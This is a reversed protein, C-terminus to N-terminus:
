FPVYKPFEITDETLELIVPIPVILILEARIVLLIPTPVVGSGVLAILTMPSM